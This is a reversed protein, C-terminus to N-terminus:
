ALEVCFQAANDVGHFDLVLTFTDEYEAIVDYLMDRVMGNTEEIGVYEKRKPNWKDWHLILKPDSPSWKYFIMM